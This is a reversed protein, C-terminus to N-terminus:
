AANMADIEDPTYTLLVGVVKADAGLKERLVNRIMTQREVHDFGEFGVWIATGSIREDSLIETELVIGPFAAELLEKVEQEM